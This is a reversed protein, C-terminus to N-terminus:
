RYPGFDQLAKLHILATQVGQDIGMYYQELQENRNRWKVVMEGAWVKEKELASIIKCVQGMTPDNM